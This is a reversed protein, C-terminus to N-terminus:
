IRVVNWGSPIRSVGYQIPLSSPCYFTGSSSVGYVWSLFYNGWSTFKSTIKNLSSCNYFMNRYCFPAKLDTNLYPSEKLSTCGLFMCFCSNRNIQVIKLVSPAKKLYICDRFMEMLSSEYLYLSGDLEPASTIPCRNFLMYFSYQLIHYATTKNKSLLSMVSGSLATKGTMAFCFYNAMDSSIRSNSDVARMYAKDGPSSLSIQTNDIDFPQWNKGDLSYEFSPYALQGIKKIFITTPEEAVFKLAYPEEEQKRFILKGDISMSKVSKGDIYFSKFGM